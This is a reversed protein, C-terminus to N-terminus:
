KLCVAEVLNLVNQKVVIDKNFSAVTGGSIGYYNIKVSYAGPELNIGGVYARGPFYRGLRLDAQESAEAFIQTGLSILGLIAGTNGGVKDGAAGTAAATAGKITARIVSKMYIIAAKEKFTEEAVGEMNELLELNFTEGNSVVVEVRGIQSPRKELVPVAIKIWNGGSIPIRTDVQKKVPGLGSFGMVNLRAKGAPVNLEEDISPPLSYNYVEPANAFAVKIDDHYIRADDPSGDYRFFLMGLYRALASDSFKATSEPNEPVEGGEALAQEQMNSRLENYKVSLYQLKVTMRRIEVQASEIDNKHYYSLSNFANIYIDEYDEGAYELTKDNALFTGITQTVSKTFAEEIASQGDQLLQVSNDYDESYHSLM